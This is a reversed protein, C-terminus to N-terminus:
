AIDERRLFKSLPWKEPTDFNAVRGSCVPVASHIRRWGDVSATGAASCGGGGAAAGSASALRVAPPPVEGRLRRTRRADAAVRGDPTAATELTHRFLREALLWTCSVPRLEHYLPLPPM